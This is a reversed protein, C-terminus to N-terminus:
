VVFWSNDSFYRDTDDVQLLHTLQHMLSDRNECLRAVADVVASSKATDDAFPLLFLM